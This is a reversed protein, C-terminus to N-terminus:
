TVPNIVQVGWANQDVDDAGNNLDVAAKNAYDWTEFKNYEPGDLVVGNKTLVYYTSGEPPIYEGATDSYIIETDPTLEPIVPIGAM